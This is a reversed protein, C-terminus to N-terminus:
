KFKEKLDKYNKSDMPGFATKELDTFKIPEKNNDVLQFINRVDKLDKFNKAITRENNTNFMDINVAAVKIDSGPTIDFLDRDMKGFFMPKPRLEVNKIKGAKINYDQDLYKSFNLFTESYKVYVDEDVVKIVILYFMLQKGLLMGYITGETDTIKSVEEFYTDIVEKDVQTNDKVTTKDSDQSDENDKGVTINDSGIKKPIVDIGFYEKFFESQANGKYLKEGDLLKQIFSLLIKGGGKVRRGDGLEIETDKDFLAKYKNDRIINQIKDEFKNFVKNIIFPGGGPNDPTGANSGLNTYRRFVNNSVKGGSRGSPITQTTYVKFAKNFLKVISLIPDIEIKKIDKTSNEVIDKIDDAKSKDVIWNDLVVNKYFFKQIEKGNTSKEYVKMFANYKIIKSENKSDIGTDVIRKFLKNFKKISSGFDGDLETEPIGMLKKAFNSIKSAISVRESESSDIDASENFKNSFKKYALQLKRGLDIWYKKSKGDSYLKKLNTLFNKDLKIGNEESVLEQIQKSLKIYQKHERSMGEIAADEDSVKNSVSPVRPVNKYEEELEEARELIDTIIDILKVVEQHDLDTEEESDDSETETETEDKDGDDNTSDSKIDKLYEEFNLLSEELEKKISARDNKFEDMESIYDLLNEVNEKIKSISEENDIIEKLKGLLFSIKFFNFEDEQKSGEIVGSALLIEFESDIGKAIAEIRNVNYNVTFRRAISNFMRGVLSDGWNIDNGLPGSSGGSMDFAESLYTNKRKLYKM